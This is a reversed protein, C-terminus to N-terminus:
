ADRVRKAIREAALYGFVMSSGIASGSGYGAGFLLNAATNGCAFLGPIAAGDVSLVAGAEDIMVGGRTGAHSLHLPFAHFPSESIPGMTPNPGDHDPDGWYREYAMSGRDFRSDVGSGCDRNYTEV